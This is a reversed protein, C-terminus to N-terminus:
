SYVYDNALNFPLYLIFDYGRVRAYKDLKPILMSYQDFPTTKLQRGLHYISTEGKIAQNIAHLYEKIEEALQTDFFVAHESYKKNILENFKVPQIHGLALKTLQGMLYLSFSDRPQMKILKSGEIIDEAANLMTGPKSLESAVTLVTAAYQCSFQPFREKGEESLYVGVKEKLRELITLDKKASALVGLSMLFYFLNNLIEDGKNSKMFEVSNLEEKKQDLYYLINEALIRLKEISEKKDLLTIEYSLRIGKTVLKAGEFLDLSTKITPDELPEDNPDFLEGEYVVKKFDDIYRETEELLSQISNFVIEQSTVELFPFSSLKDPWTGGYRATSIILFRIIYPISSIIEGIFQFNTKQVEKKGWRYIKPIDWIERILVLLKGQNTLVNAVWEELTNKQINYISTSALYFLMSMNNLHSFGLMVRKSYNEDHEDVLIDELELTSLGSLINALANAIGRLRLSGGDGWYRMLSVILAVRLIKIEMLQQSSLKKKNEYVIKNTKYLADEIQDTKREVTIEDNILLKNHNHEVAKIKKNLLIELHTPSYDRRNKRSLLNSIEELEQILDDSKEVRM